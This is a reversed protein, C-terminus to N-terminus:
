LLPHVSRIVTVMQALVMAGHSQAGSGHRKEVGAKIMEVFISCLPRRFDGADTSLQILKELLTNLGKRNLTDPQVPVANM